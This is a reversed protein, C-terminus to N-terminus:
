YWVIHFHPQDILRASIGTFYYASLTWVEGPVTRRALSVTTENAVCNGGAVRGGFGFRDNFAGNVSSEVGWSPASGGRLGNGGVRLQVYGTAPRYYTPIPADPPTTEYHIAWPYLNTVYVHANTACAAAHAPQDFATATAGAPLLAAGVVALRRIIRRRLGFAPSTNM